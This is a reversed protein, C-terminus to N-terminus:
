AGEEPKKPAAAAGSYRKALSLLLDMQELTLIKQLSEIQGVDLSAIFSAVEPDEGKAEPMLRRIIMPLLPALMAYAQQAVEGRHEDRRRLEGLIAALADQSVAIGHSM